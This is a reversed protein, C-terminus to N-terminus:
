SMDTSDLNTAAFLSGNRAFELGERETVRVLSLSLCLM